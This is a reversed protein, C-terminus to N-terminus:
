VSAIASELDPKIDFVNILKTIKLLEKIRDSVNILCLTGDNNKLTQIAGILIGLGSSNMWEVKELDIIIRKKGRDINNNIQDNIQGAEPGGMIKGVLSIIVVDNQETINFNM